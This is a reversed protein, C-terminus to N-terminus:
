AVEGPLEDGLVAGAVLVEVPHAVLARPVLDLLDAVVEAVHHGPDVLTKLVRLLAHHPLPPPRPRRPAGGGSDRRSSASPETRLHKPGRSWASYGRPRERGAGRWHLTPGHIPGGPGDRGRTPPRRPRRLRGQRRRLHLDRRRGRQPEQPQPSSPRGGLRLRRPRARAQHRRPRDGDPGPPRLLAGGARRPLAQRVRLQAADRDRQRRLRHSGAGQPGQPLGLGRRPRRPQRRRLRRGQSHGANEENM